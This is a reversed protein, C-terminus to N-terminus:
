EPVSAEAIERVVEHLDHNAEYVVLQRHAGNGRELLDEIGELDSASGLDEAHEALRDYLRKALAKTPVREYGPLDVMEGDLGHRAAIWRNEDLMEYPYSALPKGSEYHEALEKVMAQILAALALTHEVRTQADM